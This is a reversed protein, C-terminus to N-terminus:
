KPQFGCYRVGATFADWTEFAFVLAPSTINKSDRVGVGGAEIWTAEICASQGNSYASKFWDTPSVTQILSQKEM